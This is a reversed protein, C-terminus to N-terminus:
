KSIITKWLQNKEDLIYVENSELRIFKQLKIKEPFVIEGVRSMKGNEMKLIQIKKRQDTSPNNYVIFFNTNEIKLPFGDLTLSKCDKKNLLIYFEENYTFKNIVFIDTNVIYGLEQFEAYNEDSDDNCFSTKLNPNCQYILCKPKKKPLKSKVLQTVILKQAKIKQSVKSFTNESSKQAHAFATFILLCILITNKILNRM